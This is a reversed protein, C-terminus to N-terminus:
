GDSRASGAALRRLLHARAADDGPGDREALDDAVARQHAEDVNGGYKFKARMDTVVLRLGRIQGLRAGHESPDVADVEPQLVELQRRLVAAVGEPDDVVEARATLQVAGYYTTPIGVRPDEDSIAKWSSPVFAWDGAV